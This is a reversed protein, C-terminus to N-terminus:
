ENKQQQLSLTANVTDAQPQAVISAEVVVVHATKQVEDLWGILSAYSISSLQIKALNGSVAVNQAKLGKSAMSAELSEKSMDPAAPPTANALAAAETSMAQLEAAQRRLDPLTKELQKRGGLAPDIFLLYILALLIVAGALALQKRERESRDNWFTSFAQSVQGLIPSSSM